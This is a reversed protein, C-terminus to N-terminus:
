LSGKSPSAQRTSGLGVADQLQAFAAEFNKPEKKRGRASEAAARGEEPIRDVPARSSSARTAAQSPARSTSRSAPQSVPAPTSGFGYFSQLHALAGAFPAPAPSSARSADRSASASPARSASASPTRSSSQTSAPTPYYLMNAANATSRM